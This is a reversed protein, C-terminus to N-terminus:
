PRRLSIDLGGRSSQSVRSPNTDRDDGAQRGAEAIATVVSTWRPRESCNGGKRQHMPTNEVFLRMANPHDRTPPTATAQEGSLTVVGFCSSPAHLSVPRPSSRGGGPWFFGIVGRADDAAHLTPAAPACCSTRGSPYM